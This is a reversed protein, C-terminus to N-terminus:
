YEKEGNKQYLMFAFNAVDSYHKLNLHEILKDILFIDSTEKLRDKTPYGKKFIQRIIKNIMKKQFTKLDDEWNTKLSDNIEVDDISYNGSM